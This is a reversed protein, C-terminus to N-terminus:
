DGRETRTRKRNRDLVNERQSAIFLHKPNVCKPNDGCPCNHCVVKGAPIPGRHLRWSIQHAGVMAGDVLIRGYGGAMTAAWTWCAESKVVKSWYRIEFKTLPRARDFVPDADLVAEVHDLPLGVRRAVSRSLRGKSALRRILRDTPLAPVLDTQDRTVNRAQTHPARRGRAATDRNNDGRTGLTLHEPNVCHRKDGGPCCHRVVFGAPINGKHLLYSIRHATTFTGAFQITGYGDASLRGTWIWCQGERDTKTDIIERHWAVIKEPVGILTTLEMVRRRRM